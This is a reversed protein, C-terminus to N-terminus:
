ASYTLFLFLDEEEGKLKMPGNCTECRRTPAQTGRHSQRVEHREILMESTQKCTQCHYPAVLSLLNKARRGILSPVVNIQEVLFTPVHHLEVDRLGLDRMLQTLAKSGVSNMRDVESFSLKLPAETTALLPSFDAHEDLHGSIEYTDGVKRIEFRAM